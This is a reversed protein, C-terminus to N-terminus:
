FSFRIFGERKNALDTANTASGIEAATSAPHEWLADGTTEAVAVGVIVEEGVDVLVAAGDGALAAHVIFAILATSMETNANM